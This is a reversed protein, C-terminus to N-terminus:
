RGAPRGLQRLLNGQRLVHQSVKPAWNLRKEARDVKGIPMGLRIDAVAGM